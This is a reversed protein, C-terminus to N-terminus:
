KLEQLVLDVHARDEAGAVDLLATLAWDVLRMPLRGTQNLLLWETLEHCHLVHVMRVHLELALLFRDKLLEVPYPVVLLGVEGHGLYRILWKDLILSPFVYRSQRSIALLDIRHHLSM